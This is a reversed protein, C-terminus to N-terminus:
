QPEGRTRSEHDHGHVVDGAGCPDLVRDQRPVAQQDEPLLPRADGGLHLNPGIRRHRDCLEARRAADVGSDGGPDGHVGPDTLVGVEAVGPSVPHTRLLWWVAIAASLLLAAGVGSAVALGHTFADRAPDLLREAQEAPLSQAAHIASPLSDRAQTAIEGPLSPPISVTRYVATLVSGLTAIGLAMGLEYATESVAAASGARQPPVSALIVDSAVTFALGLGVGVVFLTIGLPLYSIPSIVLLFVMLTGMAVGVLALGATLVLRHSVYRVAIGALVGFVTATVAAPLEALGAQLPGYGRVLQFYQSLFFVLGSLGLVSLLNAVVVGTFVPRRFLRVDILPVPLRLQRRVFLALAAAGLLAALVADIRIGHAAAAIGEKIAYVVGLMGVMSLGVSPLDWPGPEPNRHEPLLVLGGVVLVVMAPINLLFVSGWWFHELLAGGIVPGLAAGASFASAWIGVAISRERQDPFLGRILALTAPALTAGALGLLARTAILMEPSSSYATIASVVGFLTAGCLLLKKHGIRDGLSGMSILLAALVFSYIDGIWLLQTGSASLDASIFPMALALVTGDVGIVLVAMTLVGLAFWRRSM